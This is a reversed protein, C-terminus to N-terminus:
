RTLHFGDTVSSYNSSHNTSHHTSHHDRAEEAAIHYLSHKGKPTISCYPRTLEKHVQFCVWVHLANISHDQIGLHAFHGLTICFSIFCRTIVSSFSSLHMYSDLQFTRKKRSSSMKMNQMKEQYTQFQASLLEKRLIFEKRIQQTIKKKLGNQQSSM